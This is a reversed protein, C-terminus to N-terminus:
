MNVRAVEQANSGNVKLNATLADKNVFGKECAEVIIQEVAQCMAKQQVAETTAEAVDPPPVEGGVGTFWNTIFTSITKDPDTASLKVMVPPPSEATVTGASEANVVWRTYAERAAKVKAAGASNDEKTEEKMVKPSGCFIYPLSALDMYKSFSVDEASNIFAPGFNLHKETLARINWLSAQQVLGKTTQSPVTTPIARGANVEREAWGVIESQPEVKVCASFGVCLNTPKAAIVTEFAAFGPWSTIGVVNDDMLWAYNWRNGSATRLQKCFEMAAFRSAGFGALQSIPAGRPTHFFWGVVTVGLGALETQYQQYEFLHVIIYVNRNPGIRVPAYLPPSQKVKALDTLANLDHAVTFRVKALQRTGARIGSAIWRSRNTSIVVLPPLQGATSEAAIAAPWNTRLELPQPLINADTLLKARHTALKSYTGADGEIYTVKLPKYKDTVNKGGYNMKKEVLIAM